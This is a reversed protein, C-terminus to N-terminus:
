IRNLMQERNNQKKLLNAERMKVTEENRLILADIIQQQYVNQQRMQEIRKDQSAKYQELQQQELKEIRAFMELMRQKQEAKHSEIRANYEASFRDKRTASDLNQIEDDQAAITEEAEPTQSSDSPEIVSLKISETQVDSQESSTAVQTDSADTTDIQTDAVVTTDPAIETADAETVETIVETPESEGPNETAVNINSVEDEISAIQQNVTDLQDNLMIATTVILSVMIVAVVAYKALPGFIVKNEAKKEAAKNKESTKNDTNTDTTNESSM